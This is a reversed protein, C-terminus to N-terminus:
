LRRVLERKADSGMRGTLRFIIWRLELVSLCVVHVPHEQCSSPGADVLSANVPAHEVCPMLHKKENSERTVASRGICVFQGLSLKCSTTAWCSASAQIGFALGLAKRKASKQGQTDPDNFAERPGTLDKITMYLHFEDTDDNLGEKGSWVLAQLTRQHGM